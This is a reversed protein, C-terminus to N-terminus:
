LIWGGQIKKDEDVRYKRIDTWVTNEKIWGGQIIKYGDLRYKRIDM